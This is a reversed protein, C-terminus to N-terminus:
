DLDLEETSIPHELKGKKPKYNEKLDELIKQFPDLM